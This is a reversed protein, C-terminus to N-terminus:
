LLFRYGIQINGGMSTSDGTATHNLKGWEFLFEGMLEGPGLAFSAGLPVGIGVKSSQEQTVLIPQKAVSGEVLSQHFYFRPGIGIHPVVRGLMTLRYVIAPTLTLERQTLKWTYTSGDVRPDNNQTGNTVPVTYALDVLLGFSRKAWPFVYGVEIVGSVMPKLGDFPLAVGVKGGAVFAGRDSKIPADVSAAAPQVPPPAPPTQAFASTASALFTTVILPMIKNM